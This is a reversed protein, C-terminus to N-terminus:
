LMVELSQAQTCSHHTVLWALLHDDLNPVPLGLNVLRTHQLTSAPLCRSITCPHTTTM